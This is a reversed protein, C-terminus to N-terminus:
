LIPSFLQERELMYLCGMCSLLMFVVLGISFHTSSRFLCNKLSSMYIASLYMFLHEVDSIILSICILVAIFYWRGGTLITDNQKQKQKRKRWIPLTGIDYCAKLSACTVCSRFCWDDHEPVVFPDLITDKIVLCMLLSDVLLVHQLPQPSFPARRGQQHSHLNTCGSHFVTHLYRATSSGYSGAIGNRPM